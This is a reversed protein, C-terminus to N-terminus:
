NDDKQEVMKTKYKRPHKKLMQEEIEKIYGWYEKKAAEVEKQKNQIQEINKKEWGICEDYHDKNEPINKKKEELASIISKIDAMNYPTTQNMITLLEKMREGHLEWAKNYCYHSLELQNNYNVNKYLKM